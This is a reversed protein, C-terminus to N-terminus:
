PWVVSLSPARRMASAYQCRQSGSKLLKPTVLSAASDYMAPAAGPMSFRHTESVGPSTILSGKATASMRLMRKSSLSMSKTEVWLTTKGPRSSVMVTRRCRAISPAFNINRGRIRKPSTMMNEVVCVGCEATHSGLAGVGPRHEASIRMSMAVSKSRSAQTLCTHQPSLGGPLPIDPRPRVREGPRERRARTPDRVTRPAALPWCAVYLAM